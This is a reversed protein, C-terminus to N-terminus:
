TKRAPWSTRSGAVPLTSVRLSVNSPSAMTVVTLSIEHMASYWPVSGGFTRSKTLLTGRWGQRILAPRRPSDLAGTRLSASCATAHSTFTRAIWRNLPRPENGTKPFCNNTSISGDSMEFYWFARNSSPAEFRVMFMSSPTSRWIIRFCPVQARIWGSTFMSGSRSSTPRANDSSSSDAKNSSHPLDRDRM